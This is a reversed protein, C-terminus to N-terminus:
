RAITVPQERQASATRLSNPRRLMAMLKHNWQEEVLLRVAHLHELLCQASAKANEDTM